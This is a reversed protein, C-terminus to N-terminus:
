MLYSLGTGGEVHIDMDPSIRIATLSYVVSCSEVFADECDSIQTDEWITLTGDAGGDTNMTLELQYYDRYEYLCESDTHQSIIESDAILQDGDTTGKLLLGGVQVAIFDAEGEYINAILEFTSGKLSYENPEGNCVSDGYTITLLWSGVWKNQCGYLLPILAISVLLLRERM